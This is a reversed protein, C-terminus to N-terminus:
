DDFAVARTHAMFRLVENEPTSHSEIYDFIDM